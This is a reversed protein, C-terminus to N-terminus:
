APRFAKFNIGSLAKFHKENGSVLIVGNEAATAAIIADGATIGHSLAYQEMYIMARHGVNETLPLIRFGYRTLFSKIIAHQQRNLAGQLLEMYTQASILREPAQDILHAAKVNGRQVWILVDTDFLM